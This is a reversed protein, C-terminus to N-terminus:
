AAMLPYLPPRNATPQGAHLCFGRGEAVSHALPLYLDPDNLNGFGPIILALRAILGLALAIALRRFDPAASM